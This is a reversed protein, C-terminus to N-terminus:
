YPLFYLSSDMKFCCEAYAIAYECQDHGKPVEEYCAVGVKRLLPEISEDVLTAAYREIDDLRPNGHKDMTKVMISICRFFCMLNRDRPFEGDHTKSVLEDSAGTKRKCSGSVPKLMNRLGEIDLKQGASKVSRYYMATLAVTALFIYIRM